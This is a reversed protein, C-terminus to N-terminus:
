GTTKRVWCSLLKKTALPRTNGNDAFPRLTLCNSKILGISPAMVCSQATRDWGAAYPEGSSRIAHQVKKAVGRQREPSLQKKGLRNGPGKSNSASRHAAKLESNENDLQKLRRGEKVKM